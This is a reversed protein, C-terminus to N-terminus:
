YKCKPPSREPLSRCGLRGGYGTRSTCVRTTNSAITELLVNPFAVRRGLRKDRAQLTMDFSFCSKNSIKARATKKGLQAENWNRLQGFRLCRATETRVTAVRGLSMRGAAARSRRQRPANDRRETTNDYSSGEDCGGAASGVQKARGGRDQETRSCLPRRLQQPTTWGTPCWVTLTSPSPEFGEAGAL